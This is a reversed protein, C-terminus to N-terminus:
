AGPDASLGAAEIGHMAAAEDNDGTDGSIGVAGIVHGATNRILVGGPVPVIRGEAAASVATFFMPVKAARGALTRSGFGFGLAGYAKGFAIEYRLIGSGDERKAAVPHGGADLMVVTLPEFASERAKALAAGIITDAEALSVDSM